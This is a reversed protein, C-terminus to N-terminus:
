NRTLIHLLFAYIYTKDYFFSYNRGAQQCIEKIQKRSIKSKGVVKFSKM